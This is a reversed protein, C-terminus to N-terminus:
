SCDVAAQDLALIRSCLWMTGIYTSRMLPSWLPFPLTLPLPLFPEGLPLPSLPLLLPLPLLEKSFPLPFPPPLLWSLPLPLDLPGQKTHPLCPWLAASHQCRPALQLSHDPLDHLFDHLAVKQVKWSSKMTKLLCLVSCYKKCSRQCPSFVGEMTSVQSNKIKCFFALNVNLLAESFAKLHHHSLLVHNLM